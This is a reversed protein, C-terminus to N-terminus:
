PNLPNTPRVSICRLILPYDCSVLFERLFLDRGNEFVAGMSSIDYICVRTVTNNNQRLLNVINMYNNSNRFNDRIVLREAWSNHPRLEARVRAPSTLCQDTNNVYFKGHVNSSPHRRIDLESTVRIHYIFFPNRTDFTYPSMIIYAYQDAFSTFNSLQYAGSIPEHFM